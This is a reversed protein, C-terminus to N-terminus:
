KKYHKLSYKLTKKIKRYKKNYRKKKSNTRNTLTRRRSGGGNSTNAHQALKIASQRRNYEKIHGIVSPIEQLQELEQSFVRDPNSYEFTSVNTMEGYDILKFRDDCYVVNNYKIDNHVYGSSHLIQLVPTIHPVLQRIDCKDYTAIDNCKHQLLVYVVTTQFSPRHLKNINFVGDKITIEFGVCGVYEYFTTYLNFNGGFVTKLININAYETTFKSQNTLVKFCINHQRLTDLFQTFEITTNDSQKKVQCLQSWETFVDVDCNFCAFSGFQNEANCITISPLPSASM